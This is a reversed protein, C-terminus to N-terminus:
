AKTVARLITRQARPMEVQQKLRKSAPDQDRRFRTPNALPTNTRSLAPMVTPVTHDNHPFPFWLPIPLDLPKRLM